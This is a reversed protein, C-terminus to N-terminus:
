VIAPPRLPLRITVQHRTGNQGFSLEGQMRAVIQQTIALGLGFGPVGRSADGRAFAEILQGAADHPLGPGSDSVTLTAWGDLEALEVAVPAGGHKFGNDVLNVVLREILLAHAQHLPLTYPLKSHLEESNKEFGDLATQVVEALDITENLPVTSARIFEL